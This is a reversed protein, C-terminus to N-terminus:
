QARRYKAMKRRKWQRGSFNQLRREQLVIVLSISLKQLGDPAGKSLPGMLESAADAFLLAPWLVLLSLIFVVIQSVLLVSVM